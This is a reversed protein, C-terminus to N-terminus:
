GGFFGRHGQRGGAVKDKSAHVVNYVGKLMQGTTGKAGRVSLWRLAKTQNVVMSVATGPAGM